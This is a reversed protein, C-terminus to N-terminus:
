SVKRTSGKEASVPQEGIDHVPGYHREEGIFIAAPAPYSVVGNPTKVEIRRLHPHQALDDMTNVEAFAIDADALRKLLEDRTMSGFSNGVIGDTLPRNKVREVMNSLRPDNPLDPWPETVREIGPFTNLPTVVVGPEDTWVLPFAMGRLEAKKARRVVTEDVFIPSQTPEPVAVVARGKMVEPRFAPTSVPRDPWFYDTKAPDVADDVLGVPNYVWLPVEYALPLLEGYGRLVDGLAQEARENVVFRASPLVPFDTPKLPQGSDHDRWYPRVRIPSWEHMRSTGDFRFRDYDGSRAVDSRIYGLLPEVAFYRM